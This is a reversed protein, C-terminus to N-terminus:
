SFKYIRGYIKFKNNDIFICSKDCLATIEIKLKKCFTKIENLRNKTFESNDMKFHPEINFPIRGIGKYTTPLEFDADSTIIAQKSLNIAGACFGLVFDNTTRLIETLQYNEIVKMQNLPNGGMLFYIRNKYPFSKLLTKSTKLNLEVSNEFNIGIKSFCNLITSFYNRDNDLGEANIFILNSHKDDVNQKIIKTQSTTFSCKFISKPSLVNGNINSFILTKM